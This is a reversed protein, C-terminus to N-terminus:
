STLKGIGEGLDLPSAVGELDKRSLHLYIATTKLSTHGL